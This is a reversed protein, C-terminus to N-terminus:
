VHVEYPIDLAVLTDVAKRIIPLDSDSGMLIGVKLKAM